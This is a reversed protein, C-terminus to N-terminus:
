HTAPAATSSSDPAPEDPGDKRPFETQVKEMIAQSELAQDDVDMRDEASKIIEVMEVDQVAIIIKDVTVLKAREGTHLLWEAQCLIFHGQDPHDPWELPYGYLRRPKDGKLHLVVFKGDRHLAGFWQSAFSTRSTWDWTPLWCLWRRGRLRDYWKWECLWGHVHNNNACRAFTMGVVISMGLSWLLASDDTWTGFTHWWGAWILAFRVVAVLGQIIVTFILAQVVREFPTSKPHPTLGYFIWAAFFGPALSRIIDVLENSM